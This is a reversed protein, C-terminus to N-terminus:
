RGVEVANDARAQRRLLLAEPSGEAPLKGSGVGRAVEDIPETGFVGDAGAGVVAWTASRLSADGNTPDATVDGNMAADFLVPDLLVEPINLDLQRTVVGNDDGNAWRYFRYAKGRRDVVARSFDRQDATLAASGSPAALGHEEYEVPDFYELGLSAGGADAGYFPEFRKRTRSAAEGGNIFVGRFSGNREPEVMGPGDVGDINAGLAGVLYYSLSLKSYRQPHFRDSYAMAGAGSRGRLFRETEVFGLNYVAPTWREGRAGSLRVRDIPSSSWALGSEFQPLPASIAGGDHVLPLGFGTEAKFGEVGQAIARASATEAQARAARTARNLGVLLLGLLTGVILVSFLVEVLTFGRRGSSRLAARVM